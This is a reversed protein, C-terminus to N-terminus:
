WRFPKVDHRPTSNHQWAARSIVTEVAIVVAIESWLAALLLVLWGIVLAVALFHGRGSHRKKRASLLSRETQAALPSVCIREASTNTNTM